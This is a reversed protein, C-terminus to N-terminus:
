RFFCRVAECIKREKLMGHLGRQTQAILSCGLLHLIKSWEGSVSQLSESTKEKRLYSEVLNLMYQTFCSKTEAVMMFILNM